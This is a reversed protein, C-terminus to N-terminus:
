SQPSIFLLLEEPKDLLAKAGAQILEEDSGFGWRAGVCDISNAAAGIVDDARDGIMLVTKPDNIELVQLAHAIVEHKKGRTGDMEPGSVYTFYELLGFHALIQVAFEHPKCTALVCPVHRQRLAQLIERIGDYVRCELMGGARYNERYLEVAREADTDSMGCFTSFGYALPPGIFCTLDLNAPPSQNMKSLAYRVSNTIGPASDTITGDLDWFCYRYFSM